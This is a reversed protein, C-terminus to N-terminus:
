LITFYNLMILVLENTINNINLVYILKIFDMKSYNYIKSMFLYKISSYKNKYYEITHNNKNIIKLKKLLNPCLIKIPSKNIIRTDAFKLEKMNKNSLINSLILFTVSNTYISMLGGGDILKINILKATSNIINIKQLTEDEKKESGKASRFALFAPHNYLGNQAMKNM